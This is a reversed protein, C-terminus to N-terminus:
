PKHFKNVKKAKQTIRQLANTVRRFNVGLEAQIEEYTYEKLYLKFVDTELKTLEFFLADRMEYITDDKEAIPPAAYELPMHEYDKNRFDISDSQNLIRSKQNKSRKFLSIVTQRMCVKLFARCTAISKCRDANYTKLGGLLGILAENHVDARDYGRIHFFEYQIGEIEDQLLSAIETFLDDSPSVLYMEVLTKIDSM